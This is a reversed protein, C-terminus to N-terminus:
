PVISRSTWRSYYNVFRGGHEAMIGGARDAFAGDDAEVLVVARGADLERLHRRTHEVEYGMLFDLLSSSGDSASEIRERGENGYLVHVREPDAGAERLAAVVGGAAHQDGFVGAVANRPFGNSESPATGPVVLKWATGFGTGLPEQISIGLFGLAELQRARHLGGVEVPRMGGTRVLEVVRHNAPEDDGAIFVDLTQGAVEGRVLTGAFTTNFAKVLPADAPLEARITEAASTDGTTVLGDFSENLPNSIDVVVKGGVLPAVQRAMALNAAYPLALVVVESGPIAEEPGSAAAISAGGEAGPRLEAALAEAQARDRGVLTVAHGGALLRTAIGRGMNGPGIITVRM